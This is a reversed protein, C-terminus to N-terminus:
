LTVGLHEAVLSRIQDASTFPGLHRYVVEGDATVFFTQPPGAIQLPVELAKDEDQLQPFTWDSLQAFEIAYDPRPDAYDIGMILLGDEASTSVAALFPAEVRCPGCWQAWINILMPKGRLGALHVPRGGGLCGLVVDPLGDARAPTEPDSPPCDAIGAAAKMAALDRPPSAPGASAVRAASPEEGSRQIGASSVPPGVRQNLSVVVMFIVLCVLAGTAVLLRTRRTM